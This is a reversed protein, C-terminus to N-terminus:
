THTRIFYLHLIEKDSSIPFYEAAAQQERHRRRVFVFPRILLPLEEAKIVRWQRTFTVGVIDGIKFCTSAAETM